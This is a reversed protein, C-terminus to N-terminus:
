LLGKPIHQIVRTLGETDGTNFAVAITRLYALAMDPVTGERPALEPDAILKHQHEVDKAYRERMYRIRSIVADVRRESHLPDPTGEHTYLWMMLRDLALGQESHPRDFTEVEGVVTMWRRMMPIVEYVYEASMVTKASGDRTYAFLVFEVHRPLRARLRRGIDQADIDFSMDFSEESSAM